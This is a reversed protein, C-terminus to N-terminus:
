EAAEILKVDNPIEMRGLTSYVPMFGLDIGELYIGPCSTGSNAKLLIFGSGYSAFIERHKRYVKCQRYVGKKSRLVAVADPIVHFTTM